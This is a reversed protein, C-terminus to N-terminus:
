VVCLLTDFVIVLVFITFLCTVIDNSWCAVASQKFTHKEIIQVHAEQSLARYSAVFIAIYVAIRLHNDVFWWTFRKCQDTVVQCHYRDVIYM